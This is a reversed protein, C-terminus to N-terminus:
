VCKNQKWHDHILHPSGTIKREQRDLKGKNKKKKRSCGRSKLMTEKCSSRKKKKVEEQAM